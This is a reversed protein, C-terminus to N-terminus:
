RPVLKVQVTTDATVSVVGSARKYGAKSVTYTHDGITVNTFIAKGTGDTKINIGDMVVSAGKIPSNTVSDTVVFTVTVATVPSTVTATATGSVSGNAATITTVGAAVATFLGTGDVTGVTTNSSTWTVTATFPNGYQDKPYATFTQNSGAVVSANAPSVTITTLVPPPPSTVDIWKATSNTAGNNDMVTLGAHYTGPALFSYNVVKTTFTNGSINWLYNVIFGDLDYSQSADFTVTENVVPNLPSSTFIAIPPQNPAPDSPDGPFSLNYIEVINVYGDGDSNIPEINKLGQDVTTGNLLQKELDAGYHNRANSGYVHCTDCSDLKTNVTWSYNATFITLYESKAMAEPMGSLAVTLVLLLGLIVYKRDM